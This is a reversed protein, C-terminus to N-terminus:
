INKSLFVKKIRIEDKNNQLKWSNGEIQKEVFMDRFYQKEM